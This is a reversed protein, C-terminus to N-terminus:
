DESLMRSTNQNLLGVKAPCALCGLSRFRSGFGLISRAELGTVTKVWPRQGGALRKVTELRGTIVVCICILVSYAARTSECV